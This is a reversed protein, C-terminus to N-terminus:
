GGSKMPKGEPDEPVPGAAGEFTYRYARYASGDRVLLVMETAPHNLDVAILRGGFRSRVTEGPTHGVVQLDAHFRELVTDLEAARRKTESSLAAADARQSSATKGQVMSVGTDSELYGRFWFVSTDAFFFDLRRAATAKDMVVVRSGPFRKALSSDPVLKVTTDAPDFLADMYYFFDEGLFTRLSDNFEKVGYRTYQPTVGGHALLIGDVKMLGPQVALWRGLVSHRLDFLRPYKTDHLAAVLREKPSTYRLDNTFVMTEHNGIMVHAGGGAQKAERGLRYLFWLDRTVDPGRDFLDGLFVVHKHGGSWHGGADVLGAGALLRRLNDYEGHTDGVVFLSDVGTLVSAPPSEKTVLYVTTTFLDQQDKGSGDLAGYRLVLPGDPPRPFDASHGESLPTEFRHLRKGNRLVELVGRSPTDTLWGVHLEGGRETVWLGYEGELHYQGLLPAPGALTLWGAVLLVIRKVASM